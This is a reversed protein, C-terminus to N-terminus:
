SGERFLELQEHQPETATSALYAAHAKEGADGLGAQGLAYRVHPHEDYMQGLLLTDVHKIAARRGAHGARDLNRATSTMVADRFADMPLPAGVRAAISERSPIGMLAEDGMAAHTRAAVYLARGINDKQWHRYAPTYGTEKIERMRMPASPHLTEQYEGAHRVFRDAHGDAIGEEVPDAKHGLSKRHSYEDSPSPDRVHGLEHAITAPSAKRIKEYTVAGPTGADISPDIRRVHDLHTTLRIRNSYDEVYEDGPKPDLVTPASVKRVLHTPMDTQHLADTILGIDDQAEQEGRKSTITETVTGDEGHVRKIARQGPIMHGLRERYAGVDDLHLAKTITERRDSVLPDQPLGTAAYPSFLMGQLSQRGDLDSTSPEGVVHRPKRGYDLMANQTGDEDHWYTDRFQRGLPM